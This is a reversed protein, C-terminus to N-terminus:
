GESSLPHCELSDREAMAEGCRLPFEDTLLSEPIMDASDISDFYRHPWTSSPRFCRASSGLIFEVRTSGTVSSTEQNLSDPYLSSDSHRFSSSNTSCWSSPPESHTKGNDTDVSTAARALSHSRRAPAPPRRPPTTGPSPNTGGLNSSELSDRARSLSSSKNLSDRSSNNRPLSRNLSDRSNDKGINNGGGGASNSSNGSSTSKSLSKNNNNNNNNNNSSSSSSNNHNNNNNNGLSERSADRTKSLSKGCHSDRSSDRPLRTLSKLSERSDNRGHSPPRPATPKGTSGPLPIRSPRRRPSPKVEVAQHHDRASETSSGPELGSQECRPQESEAEPEAETPARQQLRELVRVRARTGELEINREELQFRLDDNEERAKDLRESLTETSKQVEDLRKQLAQNHVTTTILHRQLELPSSERLIAAIKGSDVDKVHTVRTPSVLVSDLAGLRARREIVSAEIDIERRENDVHAVADLLVNKEITRTRFRSKHTKSVSAFASSKSKINSVSASKPTTSVVPAIPQLRQAGPTLLLDSDNLEAKLRDELGTKLASLAALETQLEQARARSSITEAELEAVKDLLQEKERRLVRVQSERGNTTKEIELNTTGDNTASNPHEASDLHTVKRVAELVDSSALDETTVSELRGQLCEVEERLRIGKRHIVDLLNWLEDEAEDLVCPRPSTPRPAIATSASDKSSTETSFGSDQVTASCNNKTGGSQSNSRSRPLSSSSEAQERQVVRRRVKGPEWESVRRSSPSSLPLPIHSNQSSSMVSAGASATAAMKHRLNPFTEIVLDRFELLAGVENQLEQLAVLSKAQENILYHFPGPRHPMCDMGSVGGSVVVNGGNGVSSVGVDVVRSGGVGGGGNGRVDGGNNTINNNNSNNNSSNSNNNNNNNNNSSNNSNNKNSNSSNSGCVVVVGVETSGTGSSGSGSCQQYAYPTCPVYFERSM